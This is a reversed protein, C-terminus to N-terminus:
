SSHFFINKSQQKYATGNMTCPYDNQLLGGVDAKIKSIAEGGACAVRRKYGFMGAELKLISGEV